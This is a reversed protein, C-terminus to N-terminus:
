TASSATVRSGNEAFSERSVPINEPFVGRFPLLESRLYVSGFVKSVFIPVSPSLSCPFNDTYCPYGLGQKPNKNTCQTCSEANLRSPGVEYPLLFSFLSLFFKLGKSDCSLEGVDQSSAYGSLCGPLSLITL